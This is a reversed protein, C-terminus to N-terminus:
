PRPSRGVLRAYTVAAAAGIAEPTSGRLRALAVAVRLVTTPENRRDAGGPAHWPSETEVLYSGEPLAAAAARPGSASSFSVPMAFSILFGAAALELAMSPNGSFCHLV